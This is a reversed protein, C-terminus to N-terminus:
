SDAERRRELTEIIGRMFPFHEWAVPSDRGLTEMQQLLLRGAARLDDDYVDESDGVAEAFDALLRAFEREPESTM